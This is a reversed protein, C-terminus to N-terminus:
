CHHVPLTGANWRTSFRVGRGGKQLYIDSGAGLREEQKEKERARLLPPTQKM